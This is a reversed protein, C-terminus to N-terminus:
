KAYEEITRESLEYIYDKKGDIKGNRGEKIIGAAVFTEEMRNLDHVDFDGHCKQLLRERGIMHDKAGLMANLFSKQKVAM